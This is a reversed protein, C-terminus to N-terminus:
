RGGALRRACRALVSGNVTVLSSQDLHTGFYTVMPDVIMNPFRAAAGLHSPGCCTNSAFAVTV